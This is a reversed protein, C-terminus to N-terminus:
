HRVSKAAREQHHKLITEFKAAERKCRPLWAKVLASRDSQVKDSYSLTKALKEQDKETLRYAFMPVLGEKGKDDAFGEFYDYPRTRRERAENISTFAEPLTDFRPHQIRNDAFRSFRLSTRGSTFSTQDGELNSYDFWIEPGNISSMPESSGEFIGLYCPDRVETDPDDFNIGDYRLLGKQFRIHILSTHIDGNSLKCFEIWGGSMREILVKTKGSPGTTFRDVFLGALV